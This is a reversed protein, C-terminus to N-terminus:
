QKIKLQYFLDMIRLNLILFHNVIFIRFIALIYSM